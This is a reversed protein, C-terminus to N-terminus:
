YFLMQVLSTNRRRYPRGILIQKILTKMLCKELLRNAKSKMEYANMKKELDFLKVYLSPM